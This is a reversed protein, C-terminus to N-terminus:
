LRGNNLIPITKFKKSDPLFSTRLILDGLGSERPPRGRKSTKWGGRAAFGRPPPFLIFSGIGSPGGGWKPLNWGPGRRLIEEKISPLIKYPSGFTLLENYM